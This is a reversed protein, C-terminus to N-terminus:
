SLSVEHKSIGKSERNWLPLDVADAPSIVQINTESSWSSGWPVEHEIHEVRRDSFIM